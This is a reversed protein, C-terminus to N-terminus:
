TNQLRTWAHEFKSKSDPILSWKQQLVCTFRALDEDSGNNILEAELGLYDVDDPQHYSVQDLSLELIANNHRLVHYKHRTQYLTFLTQLSAQGIIRQVLSRAEGDPWSEPRISEVPMEIEKRRHVAEEAAIMSKLTLIPQGASERIRCAYEAQLLQHDATDLYRDVIAKTGINTIKFDDLHTLQRLSEFTSQDPIIFKAETEINNIM